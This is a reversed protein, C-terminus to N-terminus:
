LSKLKEQAQDKFFEDNHHQNKLMLLHEFHWKANSKNKLELHTLGLWYHHVPYDDLEAAKEFYDLAKDLSAKPATGFFLRALFRLFGGFQSVEYHWRGLIHLARDNNPDLELAIEANIRVSDALQVKEKIGNVDLIGAYAMAKHEFAYKNKPDLLASISATQLAKQFYMERTEVDKTGRQSYSQDGAELYCLSLQSFAESSEACVNLTAGELIEIEKMLDKDSRAKKAFELYNTCSKKSGEKTTSVPTQFVFLIFIFGIFM